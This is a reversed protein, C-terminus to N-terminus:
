LAIIGGSTSVVANKSFDKIEAILDETKSPLPMKDFGIPLQIGPGPVDDLVDQLRDIKQIIGGNNDWCRRHESRIRIWQEINELVPLLDDVIKKQGEEDFKSEIIPILRLIRQIRLDRNRSSEVALPDEDEIGLKKRLFHNSKRKENPVSVSEEFPEKHEVVGEIQPINEEKKAVSELMEEHTDELTNDRQVIQEPIVPQIEKQTLTKETEDTLSIIGDPKSWTSQKTEQNYYFLKGDAAEKETWNSLNIEKDDSSNEIELKSTPIIPIKIIKQNSEIKKKAAKEKKRNRMLEADFLRDEFESITWNDSETTNMSLEEAREYLMMLHREQRRSIKNIEEMEFQLTNRVNWDQIVSERIENIRESDISQDLYDISDLISIAIEALSRLGNIKEDLEWLNNEESLGSILELNLGYNKWKQTEIQINESIQKQHNTLEDIMTLIKDYSDVRGIWDPHKRGSKNLLNRLIICKEDVLNWHKELEELNEEFKWLQNDNLIESDTIILGNQSWYNLRQRIEENSKHIDHIEDKVDLELQNIGDRNGNFRANEIIELGMKAKTPRREEFRLIDRELAEIRDELELWESVEEFKQSLNAHESFELKWGKRELINMMDQLIAGRERQKAELNEIAKRVEDRPAINEIAQIVERTEEPPNHNISGLRRLWAALEISRGEMSWQDRMKEASAIWPATAVVMVSYRARIDELESPRQLLRKKMGEAAESLSKPVNDLMSIMKKADELTEQVFLVSDSDPNEGLLIAVGEESFGEEVFHQLYGAWDTM